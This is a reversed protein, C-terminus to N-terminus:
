KGGVINFDYEKLPWGFEVSEPVFKGYSIVEYALGSAVHPFYVYVDGDIDIIDGRVLDALSTGKPHDYPKQGFWESGSETLEMVVWVGISNKHGRYSVGTADLGFYNKIGSLPRIVPVTSWTINQVGTTVALLGEPVTHKKSM